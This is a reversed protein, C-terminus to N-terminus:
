DDDLIVVAGLGFFGGIGAGEPNSIGVLFAENTEPEADALITLNVATETAGPAITGAGAAALYDGPSTALYDGTAWDFSVAHEAPGSLAVPLSVITQGGTGENIEVLGPVLRPLAENDEVLVASLGFPAGLTAEVPNSLAFFLAEDGEYVVDGLVSVDVEAATTGPAFVLAGSGAIFDSGAQATWDLTAWDVSVSADSPRDLTVLVQAQTSGADGEVVGVQAASVVPQPDDNRVTVVGLGFFGGLVAGGTPNTFRVVFYEDDEHVLDGNLEIEVVASQEGAPFSVSGSAAVVDDPEASGFAVAVEWDVTVPGAAPVSLTVPLDVTTIGANGEPAEVFGPVVLVPPPSTDFLATYAAAGVPVVLTQSASGGQSWGTAFYPTAGLSQDEAVLPLEHGAWSVVTVPATFTFSDIELELGSPDSDFSLTVKEPQIDRSVTTTVGSSDVATVLVELYSNDAAFVDEPAPAVISINNGPTPTLFPHVHTNHHLVVEWTLQADPLPGDEPDVASASLVLEEGVAFEETASPTNLSITPPENGSDIRVTATASGGNTDTVTLVANFTGATAYTHVPDATSSTNGDGFDWAFTLPDDDPDTSQGGNFQVVLPLVGAVPAATAVVQPSRNADGVYAIRNIRNGFLGYLAQTDGYPGFRLNTLNDAGTIFSDGVFASTPPICSRCGPGGPQMVYITDEVYDGYLYSADFETPWLGDPVFAGGTVAAGGVHPYWHVPEAYNAPVSCNTASGFTCPGERTPWGYDAGSQGENIEEWQTHGVDNILFRTASTNPDFALRYPNRLGSAFVQQCKTASSGAPIVGDASCDASDLGTYPNSAPIDGDDTVRAIKGFLYGLDHPRGLNRPAAGDGMSVYLFGDNGFEMYGSNHNGAYLEPSEFLVLESAPDLVDNTMTFRSARNAPGNVGDFDCNGHKAYTFYLYVWGNQEFDPHVTIGVLGREVQDCIVSTLNLAPSGVVTGDDVVHVLGQKATLLMRGDPLFDFDTAGSVTGIRVNEFGENDIASVESGTLALLTTLAGVCAALACAAARLGGSALM